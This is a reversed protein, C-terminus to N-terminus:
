ATFGLAFSLFRMTAAGTASESGTQVGDTATNNMTLQTSGNYTDLRDHAWPLEALGPPSEPGLGMVQWPESWGGDPAEWAVTGSTTGTSVSHALAGANGTFGFAWVLGRANSESGSATAPISVGYIGAEWALTWLSWRLSGGSGSAVLTATNSSGFVSPTGWANMGVSVGLLVALGITGDLNTVAIDATDPTPNWDGYDRAAYAYPVATSEGVARPLRRPVTRPIPAESWMRGGPAMRGLRRDLDGEPVPPPRRSM